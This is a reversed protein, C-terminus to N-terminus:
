RKYKKYMIHIFEGWLSAYGLTLITALVPADFFFEAPSM